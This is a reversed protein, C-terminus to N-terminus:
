PFYVYTSSKRVLFPEVQHMFIEGKIEVSAEAQPSANAKASTVQTSEKTLIKTIRTPIQKRMAFKAEEKSLQNVARLFRDVCSTGKGPECSKM